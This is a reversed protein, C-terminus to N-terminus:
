RREGPLLEDIPIRLDMFREVSGETALLGEPHEHKCFLCGVPKGLVRSGPSKFYNIARKRYRKARDTLTNPDLRSLHYVLLEDAKRMTAASHALDYCIDHRFCLEDVKDIPRGGEAGPGAWRGHHFFGKPGPMKTAVRIIKSGVSEEVKEFASYNVKVPKPGRQGSACSTLLLASSILCLTGLKRLNRGGATQRANGKAGERGLSSKYGHFADHNSKTQM